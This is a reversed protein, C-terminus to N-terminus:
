RRVRQVVLIRAIAGVGRRRPPVGPGVATVPRPVCDAARSRVHLLWGAGVMLLGTLGILIPLGTDALGGGTIPNSLAECGAVLPRFALQPCFVPAQL